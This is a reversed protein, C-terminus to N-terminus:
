NQEMPLWRFDTTFAEDNEQPANPLPECRFYENWVEQSRSDVARVLGVRAVGFLGTSSKQNPHLRIIFESLGVHNDRNGWDYTYGLRTWPAPWDDPKNVDQIDYKEPLASQEYWERFPIAPTTQWAKEKYLIKDNIMTFANLDAPFVLGGDVLTPLEAEHDSIEPDAAPRFLDKPDVWMEILVEYPNSKAPNLGL